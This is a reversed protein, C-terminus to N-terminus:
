RKGLTIRLDELRIPGTAVNEVEGVVWVPVHKMLRFDIQRTGKAQAACRVQAALSPDELGADISQPYAFFESLSICLLSTLNIDILRALEPSCEILNSPEVLVVKLMVKSGDIVGEVARIENRTLNEM